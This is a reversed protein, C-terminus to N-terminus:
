TTEFNTGSPLKVKQSTFGFRGIDYQKAHEKERFNAHVKAGDEEKLFYGLHKTMGNLHITAQWKNKDQRWHLGPFRSTKWRRHQTNANILHATDRLNSFRNNSQDGDYHAIRKIPWEGTVYLWALVGDRYHTGNISINRRGHKGSHGAIDGCRIGKGADTRWTFEGTSKSYNLISRLFKSTLETDTHIVNKSQRLNSFRDDTKIGNVSIINETPWVGHVYLWALRRALYDRGDISIQRHGNTNLRGAVSGVKVRNSTPRKWRFEGTLQNYALVERIRKSTLKPMQVPPVLEVKLDIEVAADPTLVQNVCSDFSNNLSTINPM